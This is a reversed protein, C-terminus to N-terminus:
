KYLNIQILYPALFVTRVGDDLITSNLSPIVFRSEFNFNSKFSFLYLPNKLPAYPTTGRSINCKVHKKKEKKKRKSNVHSNCIDIERRLLVENLDWLGNSSVQSVPLSRNLM